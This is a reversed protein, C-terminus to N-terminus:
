DGMVLHCLHCFCVQGWVSPVMFDRTNNCYNILRYSHACVCYAFMALARVFSCGGVGQRSSSGSGGEFARQARNAPPVEPRGCETEQEQRRGRLSARICANQPRLPRLKSRITKITPYFLPCNARTPLSSPRPAPLPYVFQLVSSLSHVLPRSRRLFHPFVSLTVPSLFLLIVSQTSPPHPRHPHSLQGRVRHKEEVARFICICM